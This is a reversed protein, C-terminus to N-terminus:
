TDLVSGAPLLGNVRAKVSPTPHHLLGVAKPIRGDDVVMEGGDARRLHGIRQRGGDLVGVWFQRVRGAIGIGGALGHGVVGM